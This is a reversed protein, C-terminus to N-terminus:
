GELGLGRLVEDLRRQKDRDAGAAKRADSAAARAKDPEGLVMYARVLRLWAETDSGDQKLRAALRAVMGRVMEARQEPPLSEAAAIDSAGPGPVASEPKVRALSQEILPRYPTQAPIRALLATWIRAADDAKGDQEAALGLFYQAKLDGADLKAAREFAARADATVIGNAAGTLAEGLDSERAATVGLYQLANRRAKVADEFRGLRMYVPALVEWGQGETPNRELHAEVQAVMGEISRQEMPPQVRSSLPAGPQQPSGLSLYLGGAFVPLAVLALLAVARRRGLSSQRMKRADTAHADAAAGVLGAARDRGVEELQDRYIALDGDPSDMTTRRSLPWLVAFVATGTMIALVSWLMM